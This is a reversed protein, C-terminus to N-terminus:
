ALKVHVVDRETESNTCLKTLQKISAKESCGM